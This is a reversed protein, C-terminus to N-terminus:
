SHTGKVYNKLSQERAQRFKATDLYQKWARIKFRNFDFQSGELLRGTEGIQRALLPPADWLDVVDVKEDSIGLRKAIHEGVVEKEALSLPRDALVAVDTDSNKGSTERAQSGFLIVLKPSKM